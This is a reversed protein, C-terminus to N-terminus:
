NEIVVEVRRNKVRGSPNDTGDSHTNPAVPYKEGYGDAHLRNSRVGAYRLEEAVATARRLRDATIESRKEMGVFVVRKATSAGDPHFLSTSRLSTSLDGTAKAKKVSADYSAGLDPSKGHFALAVLLEKTKSRDSAALFRIKM